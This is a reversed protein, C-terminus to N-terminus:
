WKGVAVTGFSHELIYFKSCNKLALQKFHFDLYFPCSYDVVIILPKLLFEEACSSDILCQM